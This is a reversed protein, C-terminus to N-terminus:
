KSRSEQFEIGLFNIQSGLLAQVFPIPTNTVRVLCLIPRSSDMRQVMVHYPYPKIRLSIMAAHGQSKDYMPNLYLSGSVGVMEAMNIVCLDCM